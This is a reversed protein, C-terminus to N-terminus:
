ILKHFAWADENGTPELHSVAGPTHISLRSGLSQPAKTATILEFPIQEDLFHEPVSFGFYPLM